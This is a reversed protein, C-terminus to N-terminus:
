SSYSFIGDHKGITLRGSQLFNETKSYNQQFKNSPGKAKSDGTKLRPPGPLGLLVIINKFTMICNINKISILKVEVKNVDLETVKLRILQINSSNM